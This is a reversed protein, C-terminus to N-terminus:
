GINGGTKIAKEIIKLIAIFKEFQHIDEIGHAPTLVIRETQKRDTRIYVKENVLYKAFEKNTGLQKILTKDGSFLFQKRIRVPINEKNRPFVFDILQNWLDKPYITLETQYFKELYLIIRFPEATPTAGGVENLNVSIKTGDVEILGKKPQYTYKGIPSNVNKAHEESYNGNYKKSLEEIINM